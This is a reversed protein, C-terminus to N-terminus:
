EQDPCLHLRYRLPESPPVLEPLSLQIIPVGHDYGTVWINGNREARPDLLYSEGDSTRCRRVAALCRQCYTDTQM